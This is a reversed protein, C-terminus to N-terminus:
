VTFSHILTVHVGCVVKLYIFRRSIIIIIQHHHNLYHHHKAHHNHHYHHHHYYNHRQYFHRLMATQSLFCNVNIRFEKFIRNHYKQVDIM